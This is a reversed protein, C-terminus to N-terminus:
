SLDFGFGTDFRRSWRREGECDGGCLRLGIFARLFSGIFFREGDEEDDDDFSADGLGVFFGTMWFGLGREGDVLEDELWDGDGDRGVDWRLSLTERFFDLSEDLSSCFFSGGGGGGFRATSCSRRWSCDFRFDDEDEGEGGRRVVFTVDVEDVTSFTLDTTDGTLSTWFFLFGTREGDEFDLELEEEEEEEFESDDLEDDSDSDSLSLFVLFFGWGAFLSEDLGDREGDGLRVFFSSLFDVL